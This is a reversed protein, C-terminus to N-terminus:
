VSPIYQWHLEACMKKWIMDQAHLKERSKLLPFYPLFEDRELLQVFKHLVYSYSLFNKRRSPAYKLFLPQIQRFMARLTEELEHGFHPSPLGNLKQVIHPGHEYFKNAKLTKLIERIKARTITAMNTIKQKKIEVLIRDYLQEPIETTEKGQIQSIWEQFHNIRKYAFYSIEKPPDKYSPRDHDLVAHDVVHCDNCSVLGDHFYVRRNRSGCAPCKDTDDADAGTGAADPQDKMMMTRAAHPSSAGMMMMSSSRTYPVPFSPQLSQSVHDVDTCVMYRDLLSARDLEATDRQRFPVASPNPYLADPGYLADYGNKDADASNELPDEDSDSYCTESEDDRCVDATTDDPVDTKKTPPGPSSPAGRVFYSLIGRPQQPQQPPDTAILDANNNSSPTQHPQQQVTQSPASVNNNDSRDVLLYYQFLIDGTNELYSLEDPTMSLGQINSLCARIEDERQDSPPQRQLRRLRQRYQDLRHTTEQIRKIESQHRVDLTPNAASASAAQARSKASAASAHPRSM